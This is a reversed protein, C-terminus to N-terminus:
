IEAMDNADIQIMNSGDSAFLLCENAWKVVQAKTFVSFTLKLGDPLDRDAIVYQKMKRNNHRVINGKITIIPDHSDGFDGDILGLEFALLLNMKIVIM